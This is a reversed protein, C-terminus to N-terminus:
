CTLHFCAACPKNQSVLNNFEAVADPTPMVQTAIGKAQLEATLTPDPQMLGPSGTGVILLSPRSDVIPEIDSMELAHGSKRWWPHIVTRDPLIMIDKRFEEGEVVISGFSYSDIM